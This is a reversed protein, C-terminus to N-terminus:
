NDEQLKENESPKVEEKEELKKMPELKRKESKKIEVEKTSKKLTKETFFATDAVSEFLGSIILILGSIILFQGGIGLGWQLNIQGDIDPINVIKQGGIPSSSIAGLVEGVEVSANGTKAMSEFPIMALFMIVIIILVAPIILKIGRFMYKRGLEKSRSIGISAIILFVLSIAILLSFPGASM